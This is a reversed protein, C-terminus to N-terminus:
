NYLFSFTDINSISQRPDSSIGGASVMWAQLTFSGTEDFQNLGLGFLDDSRSRSVVFGSLYPTADNSLLADGGSGDQLYYIAGGPTTVIVYLDANIGGSGNISTKCSVSEGEM